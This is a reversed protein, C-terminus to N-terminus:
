ALVLNQIWPMVAVVVGVAGFAWGARERLWRIQKEHDDLKALIGPLAQALQDNVKGQRQLEKYMDGMTVRVTAERQETM